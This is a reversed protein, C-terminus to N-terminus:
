GPGGRYGWSGTGWIWAEAWPYWNAWCGYTLICQQLKRQMGSVGPSAPLRSPSDAYLGQDVITPDAQILRDYRNEWRSVVGVQYDICFGVHHMWKFLVDGFIATYVTVTIEIWNGCVEVGEIVGAPKKGALFDELGPSATRVVTTSKPDAVVKALEPQGMILSLDAPTATGAGIRQLAAMTASDAGVGGSAASAAAPTFVATAVMMAAAAVVASLPRGYRSVRGGITQYSFNVDTSECQRNSKMQIATSVCSSATGANILM